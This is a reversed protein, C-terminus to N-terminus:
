RGLLSRLWQLRRHAIEQQPTGWSTTALAGFGLLIFVAAVCTGGPHDVETTADYTTIVRGNISLDYIVVTRNSTSYYCNTVIAM